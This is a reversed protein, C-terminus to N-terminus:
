KVGMVTLHSNIKNFQLDMNKMMIYNLSSEVFIRDRAVKM